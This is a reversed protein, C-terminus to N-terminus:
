AAGVGYRRRFQIAGQSRLLKISHLVYNSIANCRMTASPLVALHLEISCEAWSYAVSAHINLLILYDPQSHFMNAVLHFVTM